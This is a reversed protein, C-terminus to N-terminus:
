LGLITGVLAAYRQGSAVIGAQTLHLNDGQVIGTLDQMSMEYADPIALPDGSANDCADQQAQLTALQSVDTQESHLRRYIMPITAYQSFDARLQGVLDNLNAGYQPALVASNGDSEGHDWQFILDSVGRPYVALQAQWFARAADYYNAGHLWSNALSSGGISFEFIAVRRDTGALAQTVDYGLYLQPGVHGNVVDPQLPILSQETETNRHYSYLCLLQYLVEAPLGSGNVSDVGNNSQGASLIVIDATGPPPPTPPPPIPSGTGCAVFPFMIILLKYRRDMPVGDM